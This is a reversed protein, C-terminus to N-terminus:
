EDIGPCGNGGESTPAPGGLCCGQSCNRYNMQIQREGYGEWALHIGIDMALVGVGVLCGAIPNKTEIATGLGTLVTLGLGAIEINTLTTHLRCEGWEKQAQCFGLCDESDTSNPEPGCEKLGLRDTYFLPRNRVYGYRRRSGRFDLPDPREYRGTATQAWRNVNHVLGESVSWAPDSWQGPFRLFVGSSEASGWDAGFPEFGGSWLAMSAANTTLMPTGLHDTTVFTVVPTGPATKVTAIPRGAFYLVADESVATAPTLQMYQRRQMLVGASSYTPKQGLPYCATIEQKAEALFGRGDYRLTSSARTVTAFLKSLKGAADYSRLHEQQPDSTLTEDGIQDYRIMRSGAGNALTISQLKPNRADRDPSERNQRLDLDPSFDAV